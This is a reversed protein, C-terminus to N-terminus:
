FSNFQFNLKFLNSYEEGTEKMADDDQEFNWHVTVSRTTKHLPELLKFIEMLCKRSASNMYEIKFTCITKSAPTQIYKEIWENVPKFFLISNEPYSRGIFSFTGTEANLCIELTNNSPKLLLLEM